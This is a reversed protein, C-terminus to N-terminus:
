GINSVISSTNQNNNSNGKKLKLLTPIITKSRDITLFENSDFKNYSICYPTTRKTM